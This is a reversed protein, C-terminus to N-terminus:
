THGTSAIFTDLEEHTSAGEMPGQREVARAGSAAAYRLADDPPMGRLWCSVFVAGFCDGAGTPDVERVKFAAQRLTQRGDHYTAGDAGNKVVIAQVGRGLIEAIAGAEDKADTFLFLESGSPLFLDCRAFISQFAGRLGPLGLMEPRVNPDFSVTGGRGKVIAMATLITEVIAASFLSTGMVHLHDSGEILKKASETLATRGSASHKINFVFDRSGDHRYRVFASGTAVDPDITIGSIDVGDQKLRDLNVRGFDDDGVCSVMGCPQGFKGAQDIFIAPAGSPFPGVLSLPRNFGEGRETAMIEVLIEGITVIKKM